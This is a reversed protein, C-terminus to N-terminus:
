ALQLLVPGELLYDSSKKQKIKDYFQTEAPPRRPRGNKKNMGMREKVEDMRAEWVKDM